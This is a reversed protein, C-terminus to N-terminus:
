LKFSNARNSSYIYNRISNILDRKNKNKSPEESFLCFYMSRLEVIKFKMMIDENDHSNFINCIEDVLFYKKSFESQSISKNNDFDEIEKSSVKIARSINVKKVKNIIKLFEDLNEKSIHQYLGELNYETPDEKKDFINNIKDVLIDLLELTHKEIKM